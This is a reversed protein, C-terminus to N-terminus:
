YWQDYIKRLEDYNENKIYYSIYSYRGLLLTAIGLGCYKNFRNPKTGLKNALFNSNGFTSLLEMAAFPLYCIRKLKSFALITEDSHKTSM